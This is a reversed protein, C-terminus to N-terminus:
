HFRGTDFTKEIEKSMYADLEIVGLVTAGFILTCALLGVIFTSM